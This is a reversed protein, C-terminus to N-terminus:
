AGSPVGSAGARCGAHVSSPGACYDESSREAIQLAVEIDRLAADDALRVGGAIASGYAYAIVTAHSMPDAGRAM